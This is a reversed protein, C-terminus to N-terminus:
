AATPVRHVGYSKQSRTRGCAYSFATESITNKSIAYMDVRHLPLKKDVVLTEKEPRLWMRLCRRGVCEKM